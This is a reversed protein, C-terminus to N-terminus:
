FSCVHCSSRLYLRIFSRLALISVVFRPLTLWHMPSPFISPNPYTRCLFNKDKFSHIIFSDIVNLFLRLLLPHFHPVGRNQHGRFGFWTFIIITICVNRHSCCSSVACLFLSLFCIWVMLTAEIRRFVFECFEPSRGLNSWEVTLLYRVLHLQILCLSFSNCEILVCM